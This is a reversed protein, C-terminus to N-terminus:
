GREPWFREMTRYASLGVARTSIWTAAGGLATQGSTLSM